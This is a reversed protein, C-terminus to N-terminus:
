KATVSLIDGKIVIYLLFPSVKVLNVLGLINGIPPELPTLKEGSPM